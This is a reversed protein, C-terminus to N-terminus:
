PRMNFTNPELAVITPIGALVTDLAAATTNSAFVIDARSFLKDLPQNVVEVPLTKAYQDLIDDVPCSPHPKILIHVSCDTTLQAISQVLLRIQIVTAQIQYDTVVLLTPKRRKAQQQPFEVVPNVVPNLHLYRLAEVIQIRESPYGSSLMSKGAASGNLALIDPLLISFSENPESFIRKDNPHRLDFFSITTFLALRICGDMAIKGRLSTM